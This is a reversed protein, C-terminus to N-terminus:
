EKPPITESIYFAVKVLERFHKDKVLQKVYSRLDTISFFYIRIQQFVNVFLQIDTQWGDPRCFDSYFDNAVKKELAAQTDKPVYRNYLFKHYISDEGKYEKMLEEYFDGLFDEITIKMM